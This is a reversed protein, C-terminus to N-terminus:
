QYKKKEERKPAKHWLPLFNSPDVVKQRWPTTAAVPPEHEIWQSTTKVLNHTQSDSLVRIQTIISGKYEIHTHIHVHM